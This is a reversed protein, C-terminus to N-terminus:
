FEIRYSINPLSSNGKTEVVKNQIFDFDQNYSIVTGLVNLMQVSLTSTYKPKNRTLSLTLDLRSTAPARDEFLRTEDYVVEQKEISAEHDVPSQRKGGIMYLRANVGLMSTKSNGLAWEKGALANAVYNSNFATNREVGDGGVFKSDFVSATLLYYFGRDLFRELTLEIGMNTGTGDNIMVDKFAHSNQLNIIAFSSNEIVPIETLMQYYPEIKIRTNKSVNYDIGLVFHHARTFDLEKNPYDTGDKVFYHNLMQTRSHYGYAASLSLKPLMKYRFGLRPELSWKNNLSLVQYHLGANMVLKDTFTIKSQSYAQILTSNGDAETVHEMPELRENSAWEDYKFNLIKYNVGTRNTHRASFKKNIFTAATINLYNAEMKGLDYLQLDDHMWEATELRSNASLAVTSNIYAHSKLIYNHTVGGMFPAFDSSIQMRKDEMNWDSPEDSAKMNFNDIGAAGWIGFTGANKSPLNVKFCLDQYIPMGEDEPLFSEVLGFTSYRYNINYSSNNKRSIPGESALDIGMVGFQFAHEHKESNGNRLKMDFAASLANGYQAPFAGTMFDSNSLLNSNFISVFGGGLLDGGEFHNANEIEVGEMRYQVMSPSNGRVSIGNSEIEPAAVGAFASALRTPDDFGGAYRKAEEVSFVRASVSAMGNLPQDKRDNGKIVVEELKTVSETLEINLITEKGSSILLENIIYPEYGIFNVQFSHRGISIDGLTFKGNVDATVGKPVDSDLQVITAGVLPMHSEKDIVKGRITQTLEQAQVFTCAIFFLTSLLTLKM